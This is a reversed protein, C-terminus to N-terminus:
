RVKRIMAAAAAELAHRISPVDFPARLAPVLEHLRQLVQARRDPPFTADFHDAPVTVAYVKGAQDAVLELLDVLRGTANFLRTSSIAQRLRRKITAPAAGVTIGRIGAAIEDRLARAVGAALRMPDLDLELTEAQVRITTDGAVHEFSENIRIKTM